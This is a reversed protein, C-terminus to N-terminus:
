ARKLTGLFRRLAAGIHGRYPQFGEAGTTDRVRRFNFAFELPRLIEVLSLIREQQDLSEQSLWAEFYARKLDGALDSAPGLGHHRAASDLFSALSFFPHSIVADGWDNIVFKEERVLVNNDHFDCHELTEPIDFAGLAGCLRQVDGGRERLAEIEDGALGEGTLLDEDAVFDAYIKPFVAMRWDQLGLALLSDVDSALAQQMRGYRGLLRCVLDGDYSEKLRARLPEGGDPMLFAGLDTDHVLVPLVTDGFRLALLGILAAERAFAPASVKLYFRGKDTEFRYVRSWPVARLLVAEGPASLGHAGLWNKAWAVAPDINAM